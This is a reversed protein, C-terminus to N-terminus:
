IVPWSQGREKKRDRGTADERKIGTGMRERKRGRERVRWREIVVRERESEM